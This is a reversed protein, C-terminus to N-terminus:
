RNEATSINLKSLEARLYDVDTGPGAVIQRITGDAFAARYDFQVQLSDSFVMETGDALVFKGMGLASLSIRLEREPAYASDKLYAYRIPNPLRVDNERHSARDVYDVMGYNLSFIQLCPLGHAHLRCKEPDLSDNLRARLRGFDFELGVKGHENENGYARWIQDSNELSFCSAYTRARSLAYYDAATFHEAREFQTAANGAVDRPLQEGDHLDFGSFDHYTDVRTFHLYGKALSQVLHEARLIKFLAQRPEPVTLMGAHPEIWGLLFRNDPRPVSSM